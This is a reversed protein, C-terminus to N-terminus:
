AAMDVPSASTIECYRRDVASWWPCGAVFNELQTRITGIRHKPFEAGVSSVPDTTWLCDIPTGVMTRHGDIPCTIQNM